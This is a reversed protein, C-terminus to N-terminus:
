GVSAIYKGLLKKLVVVADTESVLSYGKVKDAHHLAWLKKKTLYEAVTGGSALEMVIHM